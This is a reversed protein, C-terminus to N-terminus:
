VFCGGVAWHSHAESHDVRTHRHRAGCATRTMKGQHQRKSDGRRTQESTAPGASSAREARIQCVGTRAHCGTVPKNDDFAGDGPSKSVDSTHVAAQLGQECAPTGSCQGAQLSSPQAHHLHPTNGGTRKNTDNCRIDVKNRCYALMAVATTAQHECACCIGDAVMVKLLGGNSCSLQSDHLAPHM